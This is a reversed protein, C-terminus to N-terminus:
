GKLRQFTASLEAASIQLRVRTTNFDKPASFTLTSLQAALLAYRVDLYRLSATRKEAAQLRRQTRKSWCM